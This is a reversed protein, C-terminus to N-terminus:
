NTIVSLVETDTLAKPDEYTWIPFCPVGLLSRVQRSVKLASERKDFDYWINVEPDKKTECWESIAQLQSANLRKPSGLIAYVHEVMRFLRIASLVDEVVYLENATTDSHDSGSLDEGGVDGSQGLVGATKQRASRSLRYLLPRSRRKDRVTLYKAGGNFSRTQYGICTEGEYIPIILRGNWRFNYQAIENDTLYRHLWNLAIPPITRSGPVRFVEETDSPSGIDQQADNGSNGGNQSQINALRQLVSSRRFGYFGCKHCYGYWGDTTRKVYLHGKRDKCSYCDYRIETDLPTKLCVSSDLMKGSMMVVGINIIM